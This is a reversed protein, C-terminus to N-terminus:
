HSINCYQWSFSETDNKEILINKRFNSRFWEYRGFIGAKLVYLMNIVIFIM